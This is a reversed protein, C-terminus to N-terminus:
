IKAGKILDDEEDKWDDDEDDDEDEWDDPREFELAWYGPWNGEDGFTDLLEDLESRPNM